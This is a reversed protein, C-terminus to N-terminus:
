VRKYFRNRSRTFPASSPACVPKEALSLQLPEEFLPSEIDDNVEITPEGLITPPSPDPPIRSMLLMLIILLMM